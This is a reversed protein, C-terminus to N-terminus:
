YASLNLSIFQRSMNDIIMGGPNNNKTDTCKETAKKCCAPIEQVAAPAPTFSRLLVLSAALLVATVGFFIRNKRQM